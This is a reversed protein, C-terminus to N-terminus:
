ASLSSRGDSEDKELQAIGSIGIHPPIWACEDLMMLDRTADDLVLLLFFLFSVLLFFVFPFM